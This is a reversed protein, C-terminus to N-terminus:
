PSRQNAAPIRNASAAVNSELEEIAAIEKALQDPPLSVSENALATWMDRLLRLAIQQEPSTALELARQCEAAKNFLEAQRPM